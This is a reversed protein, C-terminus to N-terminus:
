TEVQRSLSNSNIWVFRALIRSVPLASVSLRMLEHLKWFWVSVILDNSKSMENMQEWRTFVASSSGGSACLANNALHHVSHFFLVVKLGENTLKLQLLITPLVTWFYFRVHALVRLTYDSCIVSEPVYKRQGSCKGSKVYIGLIKGSRKKFNRSKRHDRLKGYFPWGTHAKLYHM